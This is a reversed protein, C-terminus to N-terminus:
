KVEMTSDIIAASDATDLYVRTVAVATYNNPEWRATDPVMFYWRPQSDPGVSYVRRVIDEARYFRHGGVEWWIWATDLYYTEVVQQIVDDFLFFVTPCEFPVPAPGGGFIYNILYVPDSMSISGSGNADGSNIPQARLIAPLLMTAFIIAGVIIAIAAILATGSRRKAIDAAIEANTMTPM